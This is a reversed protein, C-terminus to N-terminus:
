SKKGIKKLISEYPRGRTELVIERERASKHRLEIKVYEKPYLEKLREAWEIVSIGEGYLFEEYGIQMIDDANELRYLDFHYLPLKGEYINMLVFTPSTVANEEVGLAKVMGKVFTTKGAGLDGHLCVIAGKKLQKAIKRALELTDQPNKSTLKM